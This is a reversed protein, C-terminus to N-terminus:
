QKKQEPLREKLYGGALYEAWVRAIVDNGFATPHGDLVYFTEAPRGADRLAEHVSVYPISQEAFFTNFLNVGKFREYQVPPNAAATQTEWRSDSLENDSPIGYAMFDIGRGSCEGRMQIIYKKMIEAAEFLEPYWEVLDPELADHREAGVEESLYLPRAFRLSEITNCIWRTQTKRWLVQYARINQRAWSEMRMRFLNQFRFYRLTDHFEQSYADLHKDVVELANDMDNGPFLQLIVLDPQLPFARERLMGLEQLVGAGALGCNVVRIKGGPMLVRLRDELRRSVTDEEEVSFGMTLSDGIMAIRFENEEKPPVPRDRIGQASIDMHVTKTEGPVVAFTRECKGGPRLMFIYQPDAVFADSVWSIETFLMRAGGELVFGSLVAAAVTLLVTARRGQPRTQEHPLPALRRLWWLDLSYLMGFAVANVALVHRCAAAAFSCAALLAFTKGLCRRRAPSLPIGAVKGDALDLLRAGRHISALVVCVLVFGGPELGFPVISFVGIGAFLAALLSATLAAVGVGCVAFLLYFALLGTQEWGAWKLFLWLCATATVSVAKIWHGTRTGAICRVTM